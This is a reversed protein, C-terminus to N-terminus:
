APQVEYGADEIAAALAAPDAAPEVTVRHAPLDARVRADPEVAQVAQTITQVCHDCTMDSVIFEAKM